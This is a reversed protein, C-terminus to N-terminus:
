DLLSVRLRLYVRQGLAGQFQAQWIQFRDDGLVPEQTVAVESWNTLDVSAEVHYAVDAVENPRRYVLFWNGELESTVPWMAAGDETPAIGLAYKLLNCMGEDGLVADPGSVDADALEEASFYRAAWVAYGSADGAAEAVLSQEVAEARSIKEVRETQNEELSVVAEARGMRFAALDEARTLAASVFVAVCLLVPRFSSRMAPAFRM